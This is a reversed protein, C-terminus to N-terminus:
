FDYWFGGGIQQEFQDFFEYQRSKGNYYEFGIRFIRGPGASRWAWGTQVVLNGSFNNEERVHANLALFPEGRFGTPTAPAWDFGTQFEWPKAGGDTNFAWDAEIYLRLKPTWYYGIGLMWADRVYNIRRINPYRIITEDGLHASLHYYGTKWQFGDELHTLVCGARYDTGVMDMEHDPDMRLIAAGEADLQYGEPDTENRNGYRLIGVRAGLTSDWLADQGSTHSFFTGMRPERTGALYSRYLLAQPLVVWGWPDDDGRYGREFRPEYDHVEASGYTTQSMVPGYSSATAQPGNSGPGLSSQPALEPGFWSGNVGSDDIQVSPVHPEVPEAAYVSDPSPAADYWEASEAPRMIASPDAHPLRALQAASPLAYLAVLALALLVGPLLRARAFLARRSANPVRIWAM